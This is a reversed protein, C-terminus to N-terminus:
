FINGWVLQNENFLPLSDDAILGKGYFFLNFTARTGVGAFRRFCQLGLIHRPGRTRSLGM